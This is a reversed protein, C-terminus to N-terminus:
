MHQWDKLVPQFGKRLIAEQVEPVTREDSIEFQSESNRSQSHGGVETSSGASMKTVGLGILNDRLRANERTSITIGARPLYLRYALITQVLNKDCASELPQFSGVHPRIRPLSVGLETGPFKNQLYHAHIGTFFADERWKALGLLAGINITRMNAAGAREPAELRYQYDKKPGKLHVEDYRRRDYTEQYITMGDVGARVLERYEETDMPYIEISISSFYKKLIQVCDKLYTLGAQAKSEGTLILIHRLGTAAITAAETEVETLTLTKRHIKNGANFGCYACRNVCYNSLYLPTYLFIVKGFNRITLRRAQQAMEELYDAARPSLLILLDEEKLTDKALSKTVMNGTVAEWFRTFNFHEYETIKHYFTM